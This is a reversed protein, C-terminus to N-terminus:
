VLAAAGFGAAAALVPVVATLAINALAHPRGRHQALHVTEVMATSFTTYGGCIGMGAPGAWVPAAGHFMVAGTLAGLLLSGSTNIFLTAWPLTTTWRNRVAGDVLFRAAAGLGGCLAILVGTM